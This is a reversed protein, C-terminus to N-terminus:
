ENFIADLEKKFINEDGPIFGRKRYIINNNEVIFSLPIPQANFRRSLKQNYDMVIHYIDGKLYKKSNVFSKVKGVKGLIGTYGYTNYYSNEPKGPRGSGLMRSHLFTSLQAIWFIRKLIHMTSIVRNPCLDTMNLKIKPM